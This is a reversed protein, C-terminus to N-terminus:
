PTNGSGTVRSVASMGSSLANATSYPADGVLNGESMGSSVGNATTGVGNTLADVGMGDSEGNNSGVEDAVIWDNGNFSSNEGLQWWSILNSYASHSNLNSPLGENYIESIQSSTLGTNWASINSISGQFPDQGGDGWVGIYTNTNIISGAGGSGSLTLSTNDLFASISGSERKLILSHWTDSSIGESSTLVSGAIWLRLTNNTTNNLGIELGATRGYGFIWRYSSNGSSINIWSSVTFDGTGFNFDSVDGFDIYDNIGDFSLAYKSYPAVTQLDSQVLNAQTMGSSEGALTNVFGANESVAGTDSTGIVGNNGGSGLDEIGSTTNNLKWWGLPTNTYTTAPAGQNYINSLESLQSSNWVAWNSFEGEFDWSYSEAVAGLTTGVNSTARIGTQSPTSQGVLENDIYLKMSNTNTTGDWTGFYHHWGGDNPTFNSGSNISISTGDNHFVVFWVYNYGTGRWAASWNRATGGTADENLFMQINTGGGGTNSTPIRFWGSVTLASTINLSNSDFVIRTSGNNFSLSSKPSPNQNNDMSWETTTSNYVESADLKYWAKLNSNQPINALTRIPSGNNYLTTVETGSLSTNFIQVNSIKSNINFSGSDSSGIKSLVTDTTVSTTPIGTVEINNLYLSFTNGNRILTYNVWKTTSQLLALAEAQGTLNVTVLSSGDASLYIINSGSRINLLYKNTGNSTGLVVAYSPTSNRKLWFSITNTTGLNLDTLGVTGSTLFDFVYDGIANNEALYNGNWASTGLPYYAIPPSLLAMPNSVSTGGGWLTTVQSPSLAYDFISVETIQGDTYNSLVESGGIRLNKITSAAFNTITNTVPTGANIYLSQNGNSAGTSEFVFVIHYWTNTTLGTAILKSSADYSWAHVQNGTRFDIHYGAGNSVSSDKSIIANTGTYNLDIKVWASISFSSSFQLSVDNGVNIYDSSASNFDMSYNSQKSQNANRPMRWGPSLFKTSM